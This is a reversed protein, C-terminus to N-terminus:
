PFHDFVLTEPQAAKQILDSFSATDIDLKPSGGESELLPRAFDASVKVYDKFYVAGRHGLRDEYSVESITVLKLFCYDKVDKSSNNELSKKYLVAFKELNNHGIASALKGSVESTRFQSFYYGIIPVLAFHEKRGPQEVVIFTKTRWSWNFVPAGHNSLFMTEEVYSKSAEDFRADKGISFHPLSSVETAALMRDNVSLASYSVILSAGGIFVSAIVDFFIKDRELRERIKAVNFFM